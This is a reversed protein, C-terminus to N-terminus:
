LLKPFLFTAISFLLFFQVSSNVKIGFNCGEKTCCYNEELTGAKVSIKKEKCTSACSKTISKM